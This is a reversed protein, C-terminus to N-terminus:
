LKWLLLYFASGWGTTNVGMIVNHLPVMQWALRKRSIIAWRLFLQVPKSQYRIVNTSQNQAERNQTGGESKRRNRFASGYEQRLSFGYEGFGCLRDQQRQALRADRRLDCADGIFCVCFLRLIGCRCRRLGQRRQLQLDVVVREEDAAQDVMEAFRAAQRFVVGRAVVLDEGKLVVVLEALGVLFDRLQRVAAQHAVNQELAIGAAGIFGGVGLQGLPHAVVGVVGARFLNVLQGQVAFDLVRFVECCGAGAAAAHGAILIEVHTLQGLGIEVAALQRGALVVRHVADLVQDGFARGGGGMAELRRAGREVIRGVVRQLRFDGLGVEVVALEVLGIFIGRAAGVARAGLQRERAPDRAKGCPLGAIIIGSCFEERAGGRRAARGGPHRRGAGVPGGASREARLFRLVHAQPQGAGRLIRTGEVADDGELRQAELLGM